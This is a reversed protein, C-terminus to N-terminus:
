LLVIVSVGALWLTIEGQPTNRSGVGPALPTLEISPSKRRGGPTASSEDRLAATAIASAAKMEVGARLRTVISVANAYRNSSWDSGTCRMLVPLPVFLDIASLGTGNFGSPAVGIITFP